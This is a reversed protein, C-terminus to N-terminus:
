RQRCPLRFSREDTYGLATTVKCAVLYTGGATGGSLRVTAATSTLSETGKTLGSSVTWVASALTDGAALWDTWDISYPLDAHPDKAEAQPPQLDAAAYDVM